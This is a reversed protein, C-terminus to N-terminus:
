QEVHFMCLVSAVPNWPSVETYGIVGGFKTVVTKCCHHNQPIEPLAGHPYIVRAVGISPQNTIGPEGGRLNDTRRSQTDAPAPTTCVTHPQSSNSDVCRRRTALM